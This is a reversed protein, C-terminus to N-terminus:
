CSQLLGKLGTFVYPARPDVWNKHVSRDSSSHVPQEDSDFWITNKEREYLMHIKDIFEEPSVVAETEMLFLADLENALEIARADKSDLIQQLHSVVWHELQQNSVQGTEFKDLQQLIQEHM